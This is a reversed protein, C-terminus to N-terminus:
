YDTTVFYFVDGWVNQTKAYPWRDRVGTGKFIGWRRMKYGYAIGVRITSDAGREVFAYSFNRRQGVIQSLAPPIDSFSLQYSNVSTKELTRAGLTRTEEAVKQWDGISTTKLTWYFFLDNNLYWFVCIISVSVIGGVVAPIKRCLSIQRSEKKGRILFVVACIAGFLSCFYLCEEGVMSIWFKSTFLPWVFCLLPLVILLTATLRRRSFLSTSNMLYSENVTVSNRLCM